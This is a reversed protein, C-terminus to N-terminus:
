QSVALRLTGTEDGAAGVERGALEVEVRATAEEEEEVTVLRKMDCENTRSGRKEPFCAIQDVVLLEGLEAFANVGRADPYFNLYSQTVSFPSEGESAYVGTAEGDKERRSVYQQEDSCEGHGTKPTLPREESASSGWRDRRHCTLSETSGAPGRFSNRARRGNDARAGPLRPRASTTASAARVHEETTARMTATGRM